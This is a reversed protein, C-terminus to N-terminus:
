PEEATSNRNLGVARMLSTKLCDEYMENNAVQSTREHEDLQKMVQFFKDSEKQTLCPQLLLLMM